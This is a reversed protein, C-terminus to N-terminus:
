PCPHCKKRRDRGLHDHIRYDREDLHGLLVPGFYVAWVGDDTEELGVNEREIVHSVNVWRKKWRIGGNTSVRRTEFHDPYEIEPLRKPFSRPSGQYVSEPTKQCLSEHPRDANFERRFRGFRRQQASHTAAPPRTTEAKLTRHMREHRGNQQPKGPEILVPRIGLRIWWVSLRSLRGLATSAFPSGNDTLIAIPLGFEEFAERFVPRAEYQATSERSRVAILYRSAGDSITLPYCYAGNRLRFEGKYDACWVDNPSDMSVVPKGPHGPKRRRPKVKILGERKLIQGVTSLAPWEVEPYKKELPPLLKKPGWSPHRKRFAVIKEVVWDSSAHACSHPRRSRDELARPGLEEYRDIWKYGTKRSIDYRRCLSSVSEDGRLYEAIFQTRQDMLSSEKWPM